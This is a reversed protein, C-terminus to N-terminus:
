FRKQSACRVHVWNSYRDQAVRDKGATIKRKCIKCMSSFKAMIGHLQSGHKNNYSNRYNNDPSNGYINGNNNEYEDETSTLTRAFAKGTMMDFDMDIYEPKSLVNEIYFVAIPLRIDSLTKYQSDSFIGLGTKVEAWCFDSPHQIHSTNAQEIKCALYDFVFSPNYSSRNSPESIQLVEPRISEPIHVRFREFGMKFVVDGLNKCGHITELSCYAWGRQSCLEKYYTEGLAGKLSKTIKPRTM